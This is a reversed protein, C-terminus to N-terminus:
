SFAYQYTTVGLHELIHHSVRAANAQITLTPNVSGPTPMFAGDIVYINSWYHLRCNENLVSSEPHIGFGCTGHLHSAGTAFDSRERVINVVGATELIKQAQDALADLRAMDEPNPTYDIVIRPYGSQEKEASALCVRNTSAPIDGIIAEIRLNTSPPVNECWGPMAEYIMGGPSVAKGSNIPCSEYFDMFSITSFPGIRPANDLAPHYGHLYESAKLCLNRGVLDHENGIGTPSSPSPSRLLLAASQIANAAIIFTTARISVLEGNEKNLAELETVTDPGGPVLRLARHKTLIKAGRSRAPRLFLQIPSAKAGSVCSYGSCPSCHDCSPRNRYARSTIALPTPFPKLGLARGGKVLIEGVPSPPHPPMVPPAAAPCLPDETSRAVGIEAEVWDYWRRFESPGVPWPSPSGVGMDIERYRYSAAGYYVSGGGMNVTTWPHGVLDWGNESRALAPEASRYGDGENSFLPFEPGEELVIVKRAPDTLVYAAISGAAGSGIICVDAEHFKSM